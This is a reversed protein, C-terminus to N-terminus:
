GWPVHGPSERSSEPSCQEPDLLFSSLPFPSCCCWLLVTHAAWLISPPLWSSPPFFGPPHLSSALLISPPLGAQQHCQGWGFANHFICFFKTKLFFILFPPHPPPYSFAGGGTQFALSHKVFGLISFCDLRTPLLFFDSSIESHNPFPHHFSLALSPLPPSFSLSSHLFGTGEGQVCLTERYKIDVRQLKFSFNWKVRSILITLSVM